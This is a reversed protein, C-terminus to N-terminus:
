LNNHQNQDLELTGEVLQNVFSQVEERLDNKESKFFDQINQADDRLEEVPNDSQPEELNDDDASSKDHEEPKKEIHNNALSQLQAQRDGVTSNIFDPNDPNLLKSEDVKSDRNRHKIQSFKQFRKEQEQKLMEFEEFVEDLDRKLLKNINELQEKGSQLDQILSQTAEDPNEIKQKLKKNANELSAFKNQLIEYDEKKVCNQLYEQLEEVQSNYVVEKERLEAIMENARGLDKRLTENMGRYDELIVEKEEFFWEELGKSVKNEMNEFNETNEEQNGQENEHDEEREVVDLIRGKDEEFTKIKQSLDEIKMELQKKEKMVGELSTSLERIREGKLINENEIDSMQSELTRKVEDEVEKEALLKEIKDSLKREKAESNKLNQELEELTLTLEQNKEELNLINENADQFKQKLEEIEGHQGEILSQKEDVQEKLRQIESEYRECKKLHNMWKEKEEELAEAHILVQEDCEEVLKNIEEEYKQKLKEIVKVVEVERLEMNERLQSVVKNESAVSKKLHENELEVERFVERDIMNLMKQKLSEIDKQNQQRYEEYVQMHTQVMEKLESNELKLQSIQSELMNENRKLKEENKAYNVLSTKLNTQDQRLEDYQSKIGQSADLKKKMDDLDENLWYIVDKLKKNEEVVHISKQQAITDGQDHFHKLQTTLEKIRKKYENEKQTMEEQVNIADSLTQELEQYDRTLVRLREELQSIRETM